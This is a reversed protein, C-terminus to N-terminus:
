VSLGPEVVSAAPLAVAPAEDLSSLELVPAGARALLARKHAKPRESRTDIVLHTVGAERCAETRHRGNVYSWEGAAIPDSFLSELWNVESTSFGADHGHSRVAFSDLPDQGTELYATAAQSLKAWDVSEYDVSDRRHLNAPGTTPLESIPVVAYSARRGECLILDVQEQRERYTDILTQEADAGLPRERLTTLVEDIGLRTEALEHHAWLPDLLASVVEPQHVRGLIQVAPGAATIEEVVIEQSDSMVMVRYTRGAANITAYDAPFGPHAERSSYYEDLNWYSKDDM